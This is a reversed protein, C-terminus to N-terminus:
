STVYPILCKERLVFSVISFALFLGGFGHRGTDIKMTERLVGSRAAREMSFSSGSGEKLPRRKYAPRTPYLRSLQAFSLNSCFLSVSM